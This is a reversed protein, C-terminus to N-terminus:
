IENVFVELRGVKFSTLYILIIIQLNYPVNHEWKRILQDNLSNFITSSSHALSGTHLTFIFTLAEKETDVIEVNKSFIFFYYILFYLYKKFKNYNKNKKLLFFYKHIVM